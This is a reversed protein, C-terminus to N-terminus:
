MNKGFNYWAARFFAIGAMRILMPKLGVFTVFKTPSIKQVKTCRKRPESFVKKLFKQRLLVCGSLSICIKRIAPIGPTKAKGAFHLNQQKWRRRPRVADM